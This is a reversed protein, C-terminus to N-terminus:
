FFGAVCSALRPTESKRLPIVRLFFIVCWQLKDFPFERPTGWHTKNQGTSGHHKWCHFIVGYCTILFCGGRTAPLPAFYNTLDYWRRGYTSSLLVTWVVRTSIGIMHPSIEQSIKSGRKFNLGHFRFLNVEIKLCSSLPCHCKCACQWTPRLFWGLIIMKGAMIKPDPHKFFIPWGRPFWGITKLFGLNEGFWWTPYIWWEQDMIDDNRLGFVLECWFCISWPLLCM